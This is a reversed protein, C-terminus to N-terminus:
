LHEGGIAREIISRLIAIQAELQNKLREYLKVRYQLNDHDKMLQDCKECKTM